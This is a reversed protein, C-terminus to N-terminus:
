TGDIHRHGERGPKSPGAMKTIRAHVHHSGSHSMFAAYVCGTTAAVALNVHTPQLVRLRDLQVLCLWSVHIDWRGGCRKWSPIGTLM